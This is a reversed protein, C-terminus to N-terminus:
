PPPYIPYSVFFCLRVSFHSGSLIQLFVPTRDFLLLHPFVSPYPLMEIPHLVLLSSFYFVRPFHPYATLYSPFLFLLFSSNPPKFLFYILSPCFFSSFELIFDLSMFFHHLFWFSTILHNLPVFQPTFFLFSTLLILFWVSFFLM